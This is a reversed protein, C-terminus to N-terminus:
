GIRGLFVITHRQLRMLIEEVMTKAIGHTLGEMHHEVEVLTEVMNVDHLVDWGITAVQVPTPASQPDRARQLYSM